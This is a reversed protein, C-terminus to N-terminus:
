NSHNYEVSTCIFEGYTLLGEPLNWVATAKEPVRFGNFARYSFIPTSFPIRKIDTSSIIRYRDTSIFNTLRGQTDFQLVASISIDASRFTAQASVSDIPHWQIRADVLEGPAYLCLDNFWTVTEAVDMERGSQYQVRFLSFLRIDMSAIGNRYAHYGSVPLHKMTATMFFLRTPPNVTNVQETEIPMWESQADQRIRGTFKIKFNNVRPKGIAGHYRIYRQVPVPLHRIDDDSLIASSAALQIKEAVETQFRKQYQWEALHPISVLLVVVNLFTGYHTDQWSKIILLQSLLCGVLAPIWWNLAYLLMAASSVFVVGTILWLWGTPKSIPKKIQPLHYPYFAKVYGLGHILGHLSLLVALLLKM